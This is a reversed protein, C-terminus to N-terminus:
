IASLDQKSEHVTGKRYQAIGDPTAKAQAFAERYSNFATRPMSGCASPTCLPAIHFFFSM